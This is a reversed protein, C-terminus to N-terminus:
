VSTRHHLHLCSFPGNHTLDGIFIRQQTISQYLVSCAPIKTVLKIEKKKKTAKNSSTSLTQLYSVQSFFSSTFLAPHSSHSWVQKTKEPRCFWSHPLWFLQLYLGPCCNPSYDVPKSTFSIPLSAVQLDARIFTSVRNSKAQVVKQKHIRSTGGM